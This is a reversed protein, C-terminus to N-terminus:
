QASYLLVRLSVFAFYAIVLYAGARRTLARDAVYYVYALLGVGVVLKFPVDFRVVAPPVYYTSLVGGLGVGVLPNVVNSGVLTGLALNPERRRVSAVVTSLEPLAAAIGITIVGVMSGGLQLGAVVVEAVALLLSASLLVLTLGGVAVAGDRRPSVSPRETPLPPRERRTVTVYVYAGFAVLLIAGDLRSVTGDWALVLLVALAGLMPLYSARVFSDRVELRGYAVILMGFLLTQQVTSSGMNGGLVLGSAIEYDLTGSLIGLSAVVHASIEPLSTGVALVTMGVLVDPVEYHRGLGLLKEVTTRSATVLTYLAVAGVAVQSLLTPEVVM